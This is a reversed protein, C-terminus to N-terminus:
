SKAPYFPSFEGQILAQRTTPDNAPLEGTRELHDVYAAMAAQVKPEGFMAILGAKEVDLGDELPLSGGEIVARKIVAVTPKFRTALRAAVELVTDLLQGEPILGTVLGLHLAEQAPIPRGSLMIELAAARGILRAMRQTGGGGPPIGLLVEPQALEGGETLYRLDCALSLELGGGATSGNIAAIYITGSRGMRLLVDHFEELQLLGAGPTRRLASKGGPVAAARRGLRVAAAASRASLTPAQRANDLLEQVDYHALFREPHAGTLVVVGISDDADAARVLEVLESVMPRTMLAHPPNDLSAVVVRGIQETKVLNGM